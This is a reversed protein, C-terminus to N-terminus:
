EEGDWLGLTAERGDEGTWVVRITTWSVNNDPATLEVVVSDGTAIEESDDLQEWGIRTSPRDTGSVAQLGSESTISVNEPDFSDGGDHVVRLRDSDGDREIADFEFQVLPYSVTTCACGGLAFVTVFALLTTVVVVGAVLAIALSRAPPRLSTWDM